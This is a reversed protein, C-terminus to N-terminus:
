SCNAMDIVSLYAMSSVSVVIRKLQCQEWVVKVAAIVLRWASFPYALKM